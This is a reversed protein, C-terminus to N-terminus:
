EWGKYRWTSTMTAQTFPKPQQDSKQWFLIRGRDDPQLIFRDDLPCGKSDLADILLGAVKSLLLALDTEGGTGDGGEPNYVICILAVTTEAGEDGHHGHLPVLLVCPLASWDKGNRKPPLDGIWVHPPGVKDGHESQHVLSLSSLGDTLTKKMAELLLPIM